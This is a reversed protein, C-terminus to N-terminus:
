RRASGAAAGLTSPQVYDRSTSRTSSPVPMRKRRRAATTAVRAAAATAPHAVVTANGEGERAAPATVGDVVDAPPAIAPNRAAALAPSLPPTLRHSAVEVSLV